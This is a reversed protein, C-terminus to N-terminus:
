HPRTIDGILRCTGIQDVIFDRFATLSGQTAGERGTYSQCAMLGKLM